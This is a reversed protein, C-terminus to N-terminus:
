YITLHYHKNVKSVISCINNLVQNYYIAKIVLFLKPIVVLFCKAKNTMRIKNHLFLLIIKTISFIIKIVTILSVQRLIKITSFNIKHIKITLSVIKIILFAVRRMIILFVIRITIIILSVIRIIIKNLSHDIIIKTVLFDKIRNNIIILFATIIKNNITSFIIEIRIIITITELFIVEIIKIIISFVM